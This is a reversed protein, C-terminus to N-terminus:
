WVPLRGAQWLSVLFRVHSGCTMVLAVSSGGVALGAGQGAGMGCTSASRWLSLRHLGGPSGHFPVAHLAVKRCPQFRWPHSGGGRRRRGTAAADVWPLQRSHWLALPPGRGGGRRLPCVQGASPYLLIADSAHVEPTVPGGCIIVTILPKGLARLAEVLAPQCGPLLIPDGDVGDCPFTSTTWNTAPNGRDTGEAEILTGDIGGVFVVVDAWRAAELASGFMVKDPCTTGNCGAGFRFSYDSPSLTEFAALVSPAPATPFASYTGGFYVDTANAHPGVVAIRLGASTLPLLGNSNKLLV